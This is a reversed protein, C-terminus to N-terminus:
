KSIKSWCHFENIESKKVSHLNMLLIKWWRDFANIQSKEDATKRPKATIKHKELNKEFYQNSRAYIQDTWFFHKESSFLCGLKQVWIKKMNVWFYRFRSGSSAFSRHNDIKSDSPKESINPWIQCKPLLCCHNKRRFNCMKVWFSNQKLKQYNQAFYSTKTTLSIGLYTGAARLVITVFLWKDTM